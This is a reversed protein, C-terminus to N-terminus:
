IKKKITFLGAGTLLTLLLWLMLSNEDGTKPVNTNGSNEANDAKNGNKDTNGSNGNAKDKDTNKDQDKSPETKDEAADKNEVTGCVSCVHTTTGDEATTWEGYSHGDKVTVTIAESNGSTNKAVVTQPNESPTLTLKGDTLTAKEGNVTVSSINEGQITLTVSECYTGGNAAGSITPAPAIYGGSSSGTATYGIGFASFQRSYIVIYNDGIYCHGDDYSGEAPETAYPTLATVEAISSTADVHHRYIVIDRKGSMNYPVRIALVEVTNKIDGNGTQSETGSETKYKTWDVDMNIFDWNSKNPAKEQIDSKENEGADDKVNLKVELREGEGLSTMTNDEAAILKDILSENMGSVTAAPADGAVQVETAVAKSPLQIDKTTNAAEIEVSETAGKGDKKATLNYVGSPVNGFSYSGNNDTKTEAIVESGSCLKVTAGSAAATGDSATVNGSLTYLTEKTWKAYVTIDATVGASKNWANKCAEDTFWGAFNYGPKTVTPTSVATNGYTLVTSEDVKEKGNMFTVTLPLLKATVPNVATVQYNRAAAGSLIVDKTRVTVTTDQNAALYQDFTGTASAVKVDDGGKVGELAASEVNLIAKANGDLKKDQATITLTLPAKEITFDCFVGNAAYEINSGPVSIRVKYNGANVPAGGEKSAGDAEPTTKTTGDSHYYEYEYDNITVSADNKTATPNGQYTKATGDYTYTEDSATIDVIEKATVKITVVIDYNEYNGSTVKLTVDATDNETASRKLSYTLVGDSCTPEGSIIGEADALSEYSVTGGSVIYGDPITYTNTNGRKGTAEETKGTQTAKTISAEAFQVTDGSLAYNKADNGSLNLTLTVTKGTGVNKDSDAYDEPTVDIKVNDEGLINSSTVSGTLTGADATGDYVKTVTVGTLDLSSINIEKKTIDATLGTPQTLTYNKTVGAEGTLTYSGHLTVPKNSGVDKTDFTATVGTSDLTIADGAVVGVLTAESLTANTTGNYVKNMAAVNVTLEKATIDATASATSNELKYNAVNDGSLAIDATVNINKGANKDAFVANSATATINESDVMGTLEVNTVTASNTGDYVKNNATITATLTQASITFDATATAVEYNDNAPFTAKVTYEGADTPVTETYTDDDADKVRYQYTVGTAGNTDSSATPEEATGGYTWGNLTVTGSGEAKTINATTTITEPLKYNGSANNDLTLGSVTVTKGDGVNANEFAAAMGQQNITVNDGKVMGSMTINAVEATNKGDYTKAKANVTVTLTKPSIKANAATATTITYNGAREGALAGSDVTATVAKSDGADKDTFAVTVKGNDLTVKESDAELVGDLTASQLTATTSGDYTKDNARVTATIAKPCITFNATATAEGYSDNAPFTAKVTYEGADTPVTTSWANEGEASKEKYQYTVKNTGNTTSSPTPTNATDGYTWSNLQVTGIGSGARTINATGTITEPLKYNAASTGTLELGTVTVTKNNDVAANDFTASMSNSNLAVSDGTVIGTVDLAATAAADTTGDYAKDNANVTVSLEKATINATTEVTTGDVREAEDGGFTYNGANNGTMTVTATVKKGQGANKDAFAANSAAATVSDGDVVGNLTTQTVTATTNGDYVKNEATIEATITKPSIKANDATADTITYNGAKDGTLAGDAVTATVAKSDEANKDTFAVTIKSNDLTVNTSDGDVIGNLSASELEATTSGDYTKDKAKATVTLGKQTIAFPLNQTGLVEETKGGEASTKTATIKLNYEGANSPAGALDTYETTSGYTNKEQWTYTLTAGAVSGDTYAVAAGDYVKSAVNGTGEMETGDTRGLLKVGTNLVTTGTLTVTNYGALNGGKGTDSYAPVTATVTYEEKDSAKTATFSPTTMELSAESDLKGTIADLIAFAYGAKATATYTKNAKGTQDNHPVTVIDYDGNTFTNTGDSWTVNEGAFNVINITAIDTLSDTNAKGDTGVSLGVTGVLMVTYPGSSKDLGQMGITTSTSAGSSELKFTGNGGEVYAGGTLTKGTVPKMDKDLVVYTAESTCRAISIDIQNGDPTNKTATVTPSVSLYIASKSNNHDTDNDRHALLGCTEASGGCYVIDARTEKDSVFYTSDKATATYSGTGVGSVGGGQAVKTGIGIKEAYVGLKASETLASCLKVYINSNETGNNNNKLYINKQDGSTGNVYNGYVYATDGFEIDCATAEGRMYVAACGNNITNGTIKGGTMWFHPNSIKGINVVATTSTQSTSLTNGTVTGGTMYMIAGTGSSLVAAPDDASGTELVCNTIMVGDKINVVANADASKVVAAGGSNGANKKFNQITTGYDITVTAKSAVVAGPAYYNGNENKQNEGDITINKFIVHGGNVNLFWRTEYGFSVKSYITKINSADASTITITKETSFTIAKSETLDSLLYITDGTAAATYAKSITAYPNKQSGDGSTDNGTSSVYIGSTDEDVMAPADEAFADALDVTVDATPTGGITIVGNEGFSATLGTGGFLRENFAEAYSDDLPEDEYTSVLRIDAMASEASVNQTLEGSDEALAVGEEPLTLSVTYTGASEGGEGDANGTGETGSEDGPSVAQTEEGSNEDDISVIESAAESGDIETEAFASFPFLSTLMVLVLLLSTFRKRKRLRM